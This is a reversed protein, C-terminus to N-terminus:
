NLIVKLLHLQRTGDQTMGPVLIQTANRNWRPAPDIRLEGRQYPGRSFLGSELRAGDSRRLVVYKIKKRSNTAYGNVFWLARPGLSIDGGPKPFDDQRGLQGVIQQQQIDYRVQLGDKAGIVVPGEDWEPHGGIYLHAKM